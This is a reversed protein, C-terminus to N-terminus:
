WSFQFTAQLLLHDSSLFQHPQPGLDLLTHTSPLVRRKLLNFGTLNKKAGSTKCSLPSFFIYDVTEFANQHYTTVTSCHNKSIPYAPILKFPHTVVCNSQMGSDRPASKAPQGTDKKRGGNGGSPAVNKTVSSISSELSDGASDETFSARSQSGLGNSRGNGERGESDGVSSGRSPVRSDGAPSLDGSRERKTASLSSGLLSPFDNINVGGYVKRGKGKGGRVSSVTRMSESNVESDTPTFEACRTVKAGQKPNKDGSHPAKGSTQKLGSDKEDMTGEIAIVNDNENEQRRYTCDSGINLEVPLLPAPIVRRSSGAEYFGAIVLASLSSYDLNADVLFKLLHSSPTSNFDGCLLV